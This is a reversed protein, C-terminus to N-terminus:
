SGHLDLDASLDLAAHLELGAYFDLDASLHFGRNYLQKLTLPLRQLSFGVGWGVGRFLKEPSVSNGKMGELAPGQVQSDQARRPNRRQKIGQCFVLSGPEGM